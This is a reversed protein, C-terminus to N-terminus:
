IAIKNLVSLSQYAENVAFEKSKVKNKYSFKELSTHGTSYMPNLSFLHESVSFM